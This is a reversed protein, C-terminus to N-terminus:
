GNCLGWYIMGTESDVFNDYSMFDLGSCQYSDCYLVYDDRM